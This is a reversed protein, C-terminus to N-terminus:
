AASKTTIHIGLAAGVAGELDKLEAPLQDVVSALAESFTAGGTLYAIGATEIEGLITKGLSLLFPKAVMFDEELKVEAAKLEEIVWDEIQVITKTM